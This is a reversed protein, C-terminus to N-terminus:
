LLPLSFKVVAGGEPANEAWIKGEHAVVIGQAIALGLGAGGTARSRAEEGRYFQEFVRTLDAPDFGPGSDQVTVIVSTPKRVATVLVNGGNPTYRIANSILNDLVRGLKTANLPVLGVAPDVQGTLNIEKQAAVIQFRQLCDSIFDGLVYPSKEMRFSGADLQALEFLDDILKNLAMVDARIDKYFRKQTEVDDVMGDNLAEVRVRISTLPTRLDHSTWAILDRRLRDLEAQQNAAQQLQDAMANFVQGVRTIEDRGNVEARANLDGEALQQATAALNQLDDTVSASVFVGFTAAIIAAFLLLVGSLILDHQSAFMQQQMVGVNFLTLLAAWIYTLVLTRALSTSRAWGRRYLWYGIGLSLLSTVTLTTVLAITEAAPPQMLLNFLLVAVALALLIGTLLILWPARQFWTQQQPKNLTEVM